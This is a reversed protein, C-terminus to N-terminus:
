IQYEDKSIKQLYIYEKGVKCLEEGACGRFSMFLCLPSITCILVKAFLDNFLVAAACFLAIITDISVFKAINTPCVSVSLTFNIRASSGLFNMESHSYAQEEM